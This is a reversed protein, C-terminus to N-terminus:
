RGLGRRADRRLGANHTLIQAIFFNEAKKKKSQADSTM